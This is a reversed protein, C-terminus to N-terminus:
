IKRTEVLQVHGTKGIPEGMVVICVDGTKLRKEKKLTQIALKQWAEEDMTKKRPIHFATVGWSLQMRRAVPLTESIGYIPMPPRHRSLWQLSAGTPSFCLIAKATTAYSLISAINTMAEEPHEPNLQLHPPLDDLTTLEVEHLTNAMTEVAELPFKGNATEGSLMTADTHDIAANAIDSVEARTARPQRIMSDLMQTAVIVPKAADLCQQILEKQVIPVREAPIEIGLDGRAVMIGDAADVIEKLQAVAEPKEVKAIINLEKGPYGHKEAYARVAEIDKASRVFSLAIFEVGQKLGFLLDQQDKESMAAISTHTEPLNLGKHSFLRGGFAVECLVRDAYVRKAKVVILGDDLLLTQGVKVDKELREYSVPIIYPLKGEGSTFSVEGGTKLEIGEPPLTGVRIKPGQLDQLIPIPMGTRKEIGRITAIYKAHDEHTGHSFNLRCVNMGTRLLEELRSASAPGVTCVIKTRKEIFSMANAVIM